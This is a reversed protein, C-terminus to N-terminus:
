GLTRLFLDRLPQRYAHYASRLTELDQHGMARALARCVRPEEEPLPLLDTPRDDRLLFLSQRLRTLLDYAGMLLEADATELLSARQLARIAELTSPDRLSPAEGGHALQLSQVLFEIDSLGGPGLKLHRERDADSVRETEIRRKMARIEERWTDPMPRRYVWPEVLTRFQEIVDPNGAVPRLRTLMQYEWTQARGEESYYRRAAELATVTFGQRGEPRLRLDLEFLPGEETVTRLAEGLTKALLEYSQQPLGSESGFVYLLDLDSAFHLDHGGFRGLAFVAFDGADERPWRGEAQLYRVAIDLAAEVLAEALASWEGTEVEMPVPELVHRGALRVFERLKYRRLVSLRRDWQGVGELRACLEAAFQDRGRRLAIQERDTILDSLEPHRLLTRLAVPAAGAFRVLAEMAGPHDLFSQYLSRHVLKRDAFDALGELAWAPDAALSCADLLEPALDAFIRRTSAPHSYHRGGTAMRVLADLATPEEIGRTRLEQELASRGEPTDALLIMARVPDGAESTRVGLREHIEEALRRVRDSHLRYAGVFAGADPFGMSRALRRLDAASGPIRRVPLDHLVQLRHEVERFFRYGDAFSRHEEPSLLGAEALRELATATDRVQLSPREAGFLLQLLQVTFEVDRITGRGEKVHGEIEGADELKREVALRMERVDEIVTAGQLRRYAVPRVLDMFRRGLEEDGAVPRAKILAQREWTEAWRDYYDRFARFSRVLAGARGEPRLRMDVRFCRGEATDEALIQILTEALRTAYRRHGEDQPSPSDMLFVLDIDSSYNLERAGLKGMAIVTFRVAASAEPFRPDVEERALRLAAQVLAEALDSIEAVVEELPARRALDRWGIRLFERRKVRRLGDRRSEPRRLPRVAAEAAAHYSELTRPAPAEIFMSYLWPDRALIDAFYQSTGFLSLLDDLLRPDDRLLGLTTQPTPLAGAWRELNVLAREGDATEALAPILEELFPVAAEPRGAREALRLLLRRAQGAEGPVEELHAAAEASLVTSWDM